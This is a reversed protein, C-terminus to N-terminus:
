GRKIIELEQLYELVAKNDHGIELLHNIIEEIKELNFHYFMVEFM